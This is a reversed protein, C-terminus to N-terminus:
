RRSESHHRYESPTCGMVSLFVDNFSRISQFGCMQSIETIGCAETALMQAAHEVRCENLVQRFKISYKQNLLRSLYHYEYGFHQAVNQLSLDESFHTEIYDLVRCILDDNKNKRPELQVQKVYQDCLAYLCARKMLLSPEGIMLNEKVLAEVEEGPHFIMTDGQLDKIFSAFEPVFDESFVAVWAMCDEEIRFSHIQNSLIMAWEGKQLIVDNEKMTLSMTGHLVCILELNKHFHPKWIRNTYTYANYNNNGRSNDSQHDAKSM